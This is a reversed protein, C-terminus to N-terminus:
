FIRRSVLARAEAPLELGTEDGSPKRYGLALDGVQKWSVNPDRNKTRYWSKVTVIAAREVNAPLADVDAIDTKFSPLNYGAYYTVYVNPHDDWVRPDRTIGGWGATERVWGQRRYLIGASADDVTFDTVTNSDIVIVPTGVLPTRALMLRTSGSGSLVEDYQQYAWFKNTYNELASSAAPIALKLWENIDMTSIGLELKVHESTTLDTSEAATTISLSM